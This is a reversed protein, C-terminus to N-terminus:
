PCSRRAHSPSTVSSSLTDKLAQVLNESQGRGMGGGEVRIFTRLFYAAVSLSLSLFCSCFLGGGGFFFFFNFFIGSSSSSSRIFLLAEKKKKEEKKGKKVKVIDSPM